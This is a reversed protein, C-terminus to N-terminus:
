KHLSAKCQRRTQGAETACGVVRRSKRFARRVTKTLIKALELEARNGKNKSNIRRNKM